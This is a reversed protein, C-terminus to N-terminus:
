NESRREKLREWLYGGKPKEKPQNRKDWLYGKDPQSLDRKKKKKKKLREELGEGLAGLHRRPKHRNKYGDPNNKPM